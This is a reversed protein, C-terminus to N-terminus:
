AWKRKEQLILIKSKDLGNQSVYSYSVNRLDVPFVPFSKHGDRAPPSWIHSM